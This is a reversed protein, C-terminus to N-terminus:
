SKMFSPKFGIIERKKEERLPMQPMLRRAMDRRVKQWRLYDSRRLEACLMQRAAAELDSALKAREEASVLASRRLGQWCLGFARWRCAITLSLAKVFFFPYFFM